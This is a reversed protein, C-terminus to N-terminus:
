KLIDEVKKRITKSNLFYIHKNYKDIIDDIDSLDSCNIFHIKGNDKYKSMRGLREVGNYTKSMLLTKDKTHFFVFVSSALNTFLSGDKEYKRYDLDPAMLILEEFRTSIVYKSITEFLFRNGMSHCMLSYKYDITNPINNLLDALTNTSNTLSKVTQRYNISNADWIIHVIACVNYSDSTFYYKEFKKTSMSLGYPLSGWFGHIFFLVKAEKPFNQIENNVWLLADNTTAEDIILNKKVYDFKTSFKKIKFKGYKVREGSPSIKIFFQKVTKAKVNLYSFIFVVSLILNKYNM